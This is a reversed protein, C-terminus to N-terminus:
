VNDISEVEERERGRECGEEEEETPRSGTVPVYYGCVISM